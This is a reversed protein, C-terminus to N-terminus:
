LGFCYDGLGFKLERFGLIWDEILEETLWLSTRSRFWHNASYFIQGEFGFQLDGISLQSTTEV